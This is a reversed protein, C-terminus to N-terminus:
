SLGPALAVRSDRVERNEIRLHAVGLAHERVRVVNALHTWKEPHRILEHTVRVVRFLTYVEGNHTVETFLDDDMISTVPLGEPLLITKHDSM